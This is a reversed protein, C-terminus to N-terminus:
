HSRSALPHLMCADIAEPRWHTYCGLKRICQVDRVDRVCMGCPLHTHHRRSASIKQQHSDTDLGGMLLEGALSVRSVHSLPESAAAEAEEITTTADLPSAVELLVTEERGNWCGLHSQLRQGLHLNDNHM